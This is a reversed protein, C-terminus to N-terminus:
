KEKTGPRPKVPMGDPKPRSPQNPGGRQGNTTHDSKKGTETKKPQVRYELYAQM